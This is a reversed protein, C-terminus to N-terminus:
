GRLGTRKAQVFRAASQFLTRPFTDADGYDIGAHFDIMRGQGAESEQVIQVHDIGTNLDFDFRAVARIDITM